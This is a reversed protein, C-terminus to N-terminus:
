NQPTYKVLEFKALAGCFAIFFMQQILPSPATSQM